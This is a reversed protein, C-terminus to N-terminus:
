KCYFIKNEDIDKIHNENNKFKLNKFNLLNNKNKIIEQIDKITSMQKEILQQYVSKFKTEKIDDYDNRDVIKLIEKCMNKSIYYYVIKKEQYYDKYFGENPDPLLIEEDEYSNLFKNNVLSECIRKISELNQSLKNSVAWDFIADKKVFVKMFEDIYKIDKIPLIKELIAEQGKEFLLEMEKNFKKNEHYRNEKIIRIPQGQSSQNKPNNNKLRPYIYQYSLRLLQVM